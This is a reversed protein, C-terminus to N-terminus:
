RRPSESPRESGCMAKIDTWDYDAMMRAAPRPWQASLARM